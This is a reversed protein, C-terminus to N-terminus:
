NISNITRHLIPFDELNFRKSITASMDEWEIDNSHFNWNDLVAVLPPRENESPEADCLLPTNVEVVFHDSTSRLPHLINYSHIIASNNSFVLDLTGEDVHTPSTVLQQLFHDNQLQKVNQVMLQESTSGGCGSDDDSWSAHALNFDGRFFINPSPDPLGSLSKSLKEIVPLFEKETSRHNGARDDPQRYVVAIYM